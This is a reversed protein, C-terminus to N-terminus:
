FAEKELFGAGGLAIDQASAVFRALREAQREASPRVSALIVSGAVATGLLHPAPPVAPQDPPAMSDGSWFAAVATWAEASLFGTEQARAMAERRVADGPKRVWVEALACADRDAAPLDDPATAGACRAAWWVAERAPLAHACLRAAELLMNQQQLRAVAESVLTCSQLAAAIDSPLELRPILRPLATADLKNKPTAQNM